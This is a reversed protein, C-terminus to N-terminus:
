MKYRSLTCLALFDSQEQKIGNLLYSPSLEEIIVLIQLCKNTALHYRMLVVHFFDSFAGNIAIFFVIFPLLFPFGIFRTGLNSFSM